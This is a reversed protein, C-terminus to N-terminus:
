LRRGFPADPTAYGVGICQILDAEAAVKWGCCYRVCQAPPVYTDKFKKRYEPYMTQAGGLIVEEPINYLKTLEGIFKNEGPLIHPVAGFGTLNAVEIDPNCPAPVTSIQAKPDMIWTRSVILPESFYVPDNIYQTITLLDDHRMYHRTISAEDSLPVGNRRLSGAKFHTTETVLVDGQWLGTTFGEFTHLANESPHPRGDMWITTAAIDLGGSMKWAVIKGQSDSESWMRFGFPGYSLYSPPYYMCQREPMSLVSGIYSLAKSRGESNLPLGMYDVAEPGPAREEWDQHLKATWNGSLDIQAAAPLSLLTTMLAFSFFHTIM